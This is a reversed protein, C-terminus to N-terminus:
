AHMSSISNPRCCSICLAPQSVPQRSAGTVQLTASLSVCAEATATGIATAASSAAADADEGSSVQLVPLTKLQVALQALAQVTCLLCGAPTLM